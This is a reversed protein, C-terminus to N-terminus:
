KIELNDASNSKKTKNIWFEYLDDISCVWGNNKKAYRILFWYLWGWGPYDIKDFTSNHWLISIHSRFKRARIILKALRYSATFPNLQMGAESILTTDMVVLPIELTEFPRDNEIDYPYFPFSIGARFGIHEWYGLSSDYKVKMKDLTDFTIRYEFSLKHSRYGLPQPFLKNLKELEKKTEKIYYASEPSGHLGVDSSIFVKKLQERYKDNAFYARRADDSIDQVLIFNTSRVQEKQEKRLIKHMARVPSFQKKTLFHGMIKYLSKIPTNKFRSKNYKMIESFHEKSWVDWYDIDHSLSMSFSKDHKWKFGKEYNPLSIELINDLIDCYADVVPVETFDWKYQMSKKFRFRNDPNSIKKNIHEKWCSLFYFGSAIIDKNIRVTKEGISYISGPASFFFPIKENKYNNFRVKFQPYFKDDLFFDNAGHNYKITLPYSNNLNSGYYIDVHKRTTGYYFTPILELIYCYTRFVYEAKNYFEKEVDLLISVEEVIFDRM